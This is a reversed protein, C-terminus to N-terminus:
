CLDNRFYDSDGNRFNLLNDILALGKLTEDVQIDRYMCQLIEEKKLSREM